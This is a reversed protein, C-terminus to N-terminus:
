AFLYSNDESWVADVCPGCFAAQCTSLLVFAIVPVLCGILFRTQRQVSGLIVICFSFIVSMERWLVSLFALYRAPSPGLCGCSLCTFMVLFMCNSKVGTTTGLASILGLDLSSVGFSLPLSPPPRSLSSHFPLFLLPHLSLPSIYYVPSLCSLFPSLLFPSPVYVIRIIWNCLTVDRASCSLRTLASLRFSSCLPLTVSALFYSSM